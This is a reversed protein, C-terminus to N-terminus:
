STESISLSSSFIPNAGNYVRVRQGCLWQVCINIFALSCAAGHECVRWHVSHASVSVGREPPPNTTRCGRRARHMRCLRHVNFCSGGLCFGYWAVRKFTYNLRSGLVLVLQSSCWVGASACLAKCYVVHFIVATVPFHVIRLTLSSCVMVTQISRESVTASDPSVHKCTLVCAGGFTFKSSRGIMVCWSKSRHGVSCCPSKRVLWCCQLKSVVSPGIRNPAARRRTRCRHHAIVFRCRVRQRCRGQGRHYGSTARSGHSCM